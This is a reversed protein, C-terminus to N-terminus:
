VAVRCLREWVCVCACAYMCMHVPMATCLWLLGGECLQGWGGDQGGKHSLAWRPSETPMSCPTQPTDRFEMSHGM